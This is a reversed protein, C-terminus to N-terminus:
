FESHEALEFDYAELELVEGIGEVVVKILLFDLDRGVSFQFIM